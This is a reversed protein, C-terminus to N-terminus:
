ELAALLDPFYAAVSDWPNPLVDSNVYIYGVYPKASKVYASDLQATAYPIIGFGERPYGTHWGALSSLSPVGAGEYILTTDVAGVFSASTDQGPNGVTYGFGQAKAYQSVNRYFLDDGQTNSEEDFFIGGLQPYFAKWADIDAKVAGEGRATYGTAVYGLVRIGAAILRAIGATYAASQSPGPGNAPNIVALVPVSPHLQKAAAVAAWSPDSPATYLPVITGTTASTAAPAAAPAAPSAPTSAPTATTPAPTTGAGSSAPASTGSNDAAGNDGNKGTEGGCAAMLLSLMATGVLLAKM